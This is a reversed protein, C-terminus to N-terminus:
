FNRNFNGIDIFNGFIEPPFVLKFSKRNKEISFLFRLTRLCHLQIEHKVKIDEIQNESYQQQSAEHTVQDKSTNQAGVSENNNGDADAQLEKARRAAREKILPPCNDM